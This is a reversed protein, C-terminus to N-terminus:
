KAEENIRNVTEESRMVSQELVGRADSKYRLFDKLCTTMGIIKEKFPQKFNGAYEKYQDGRLPHKIDHEDMLKRVQEIMPM